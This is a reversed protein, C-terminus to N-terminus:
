QVNDIETVSGEEKFSYECIRDTDIYLIILDEALMEMPLRIQSEMSNLTVTVRGACEGKTMGECVPIQSPKHHWELCDLNLFGKM